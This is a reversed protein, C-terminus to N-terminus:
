VTMIYTHWREGVVCRSSKFVLSKTCPDRDDSGLVRVQCIAPVSYKHTGGVSRVRTSHDTGASFTTSLTLGQGEGLDTDLGNSDVEEQKQGWKRTYSELWTPTPSPPSPFFSLWRTWLFM